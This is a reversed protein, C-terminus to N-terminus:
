YVSLVHKVVLLESVLCMPINDVLAGVMNNPAGLITSGYKMRTHISPQFLDNLVHAVFQATLQDVHLDHWVMYMCTHLNIWLKTDM